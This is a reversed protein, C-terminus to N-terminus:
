DHHPKQEGVARGIGPPVVERALRMCINPHGSSKCFGAWWAGEIQSKDQQKITPLVPVVRRYPKTCSRTRNECFRGDKSEERM